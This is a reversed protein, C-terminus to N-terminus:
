ISSFGYNTMANLFHSDWNCDGISHAFSGMFHAFIKRCEGSLPLPCNKQIYGIYANLFRSWHNFEGVAPNVPFGSDPYGSGNRYAGQEQQMLTKLDVSTLSDLAVDAMFMHVFVGSAFAQACCLLALTLVIRKM